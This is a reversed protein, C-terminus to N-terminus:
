KDGKKRESEMERERQKEREKNKWTEGTHKIRTVLSFIEEETNRGM